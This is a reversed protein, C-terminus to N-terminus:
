ADGDSSPTVDIMPGFGLERIQRNIDALEALLEEDSKDDYNKVISTPLERQLRDKDDAVAYGVIADKIKMEKFEAADADVVRDLLRNKVIALKSPEVARTQALFAAPAVQKGEKLDKAVRAVTSRSVGTDAACDDWTAGAELKAAILARKYHTAAQHPTLAKDSKDGM